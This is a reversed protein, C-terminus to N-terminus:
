NIVIDAKRDNLSFVRLTIRVGRKRKSGDLREPLCIQRYGVSCPCPKRCAKDAPKTQQVASLFNTQPSAM